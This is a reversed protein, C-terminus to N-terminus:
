KETQNQLPIHLVVRTGAADGNSDYLDIIEVHFEKEHISNLLELRQQTVTTGMSQHPESRHRRAMAAKRGIGNDEITCVLTNRDAVEFKIGLKGGTRNRLGHHVANEVYPQILMSPIQTANLPIAPDVSIEYQFSDDFRLGELQMYLRLFGIEDHLSIMSHQSHYLAVRMLRAFKSLYASAEDSKHLLIFSHISNLSNFIFHPKMQLRLAQLKAEIVRREDRELRRRRHGRYLVFGISLISGAALLRFWITDWVPPMITIFIRLGKMNWVGHSNAGRIHLVYRGPDIGSYNAYRRNGCYNWKPDVGELKYAYLNGAPNLYDLAAFEVALHNQTHSLTVSDGDLLELSILSDSARFSTVALPPVHRNKRLASPDFRTVQNVGGFYLMGNTDRWAAHLAYEDGALGDASTYTLIRDDPEIMDNDPSYCALGMSTSLWLKGADDELIACVANSPLGEATTITVFDDTEPRYRALGGGYIGVWITGNRDELISWVSGKPLSHPDGPVHQYSRPEATLSDWRYLRLETGAWMRGKSDCRLDWVASSLHRLPSRLSDQRLVSGDPAFVTLGGFSGVWLNGKRDQTLCRVRHHNVHQDPESFTGTNMNYRQLGDNTAVYLYPSIEYLANCVRDALRGAGGVHEAHDTVSDTGSHYQLLQNDTGIWLDGRSDRYISRVRTLAYKSYSPTPIRIPPPFFYAASVIKFLGDDSGAWFLGGHDQLFGHPRLLYVPPYDITLSVLRSGDSSYTPEVLILGGSGFVPKVLPSTLRTFWSTTTPGNLPSPMGTHISPRVITTVTDVTRMSVPDIRLMSYTKEVTNTSALHCLFGSADTFLRLSLSYKASSEIPQAVRIFSETGAKRVYTRLERHVKGPNSAVITVGVWLNGTSDELVTLVRCNRTPDRLYHVFSDSQPDYRNLGNDTGIWLDGNRDTTLTMVSSSSLSTPDSPDHRYTTLEGTERDFRYLEELTGAWINANVDEALVRIHASTGWYTTFTYGDYRTLGDRTAAWLFGRSDILVAYVISHPLGQEASLLVVRYESGDQGQTTAPPESGGGSHPLLFLALALFPLGCLSPSRGFHRYRPCHTMRIM